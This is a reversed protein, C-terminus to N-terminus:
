AACHMEYVFFEIMARDDHLFGDGYQIRIILVRQGLSNQLLLVDCIGFRNVHHQLSVEFDGAAPQLLFYLSSLFSLLFSLGALNRNACNLEGLTLIKVRVREDNKCNSSNRGQGLPVELEELAAYGKARYFAVGSLTAGMELRTFGAKRAANECAELILSGIGRRVWAPDVFFARIKAPDRAPDLLSDERAAYQDGGYLTKRKSWGGCGAIVSNDPSEFVEAVLYTGDAILQSDVGYVSKLAGEIQAPSYDEAQLGRM